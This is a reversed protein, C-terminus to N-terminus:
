HALRHRRSGAVWVFLALVALALGVLVQPWETWLLGVFLFAVALFGALVALFQVIRGM